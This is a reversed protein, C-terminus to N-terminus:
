RRKGDLDVRISLQLVEPREESRHGSMVLWHGGVGEFGILCPPAWGKNRLTDIFRNTRDTLGPMVLDSLLRGIMAEDGHGSITKAAGAVYTISGDLDTEILLDGGAFAFGVFRDRQLRLAADRKSPSAM